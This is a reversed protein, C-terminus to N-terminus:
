KHRIARYSASAQGLRVIPKGAVVFCSFKDAVFTELAGETLDNPILLDAIRWRDGDEILAIPRGKSCGGKPTVVNVVFQGSINLRM